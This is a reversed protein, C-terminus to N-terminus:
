LPVLFRMCSGENAWLTLLRKCCVPVHEIVDLFPMRSLGIQHPLICSSLPALEDTFLASEAEVVLTGQCLIYSPAM